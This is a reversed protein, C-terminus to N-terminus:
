KPCVMITISQHFCNEYDIIIQFANTYYVKYNSILKHTLKLETNPHKECFVNTLIKTLTIMSFVCPFLNGFLTYIKAHYALLFPVLSMNRKTNRVSFSRSIFM